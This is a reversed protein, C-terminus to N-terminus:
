FLTSLIYLQFRVNYDVKLSGIVPIVTLASSWTRGLRPLVYTRLYDVKQATEASQLSWGDLDTTDFHIRLPQYEDGNQLIRLIERDYSKETRNEDNKDDKEDGLGRQKQRRRTEEREERVIRVQEYPHDRYKMYRSPAITGMDDGRRAPRNRPRDYILMSHASHFTPETAEHSLAFTNCGTRITFLLLIQLINYNM